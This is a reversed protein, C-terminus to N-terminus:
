SGSSCRRGPNYKGVPPVRDKQHTAYYRVAKLWAVEGRGLFMDKLWIFFMVFTRVAASEPM